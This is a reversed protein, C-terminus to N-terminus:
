DARPPEKPHNKLILPLQAATFLLTIPMVGWVKFAVWFDTSFNRWVVENIAALFLCFGGWRLTLTRWTSDPMPPFGAHLAMKLLNRGLLLGGFLAVAFILNVITPKVKIFREDHLGITLAGFVTIIIGNVWLMPAISKYKIQSVIMAILTSAMFTGTAWYISEEGVERKAIYNTLFFILLPGFEIGLKTTDMQQPESQESM